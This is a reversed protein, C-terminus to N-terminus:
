WCILLRTMHLNNERGMFKWLEEVLNSWERCPVPIPHSFSKKFCIQRWFTLFAWIAKVFMIKCCKQPSFVKKSGNGIVLLSPFNITLVNLQYIQFATPYTAQVFKGIIAMERARKSNEWRYICANAVGNHM